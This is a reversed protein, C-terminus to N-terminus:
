DRRFGDTDRLREPDADRVVADIRAAGAERVSQNADDQEKTIQDSRADKRGERYLLMAALAALTLGTGKIGLLRWAVATLAVGAIFLAWFPIHEILWNM